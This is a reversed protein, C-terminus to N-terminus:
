ALTVSKTKAALTARNHAEQLPLPLKNSGVLLRRTIAVADDLTIRNGASVYLKLRGNVLVRAVEDGGFVLRGDVEEGVLRRKAVGISRTNLVVGVHTAIGFRRPHAVGHGNVMIVDPKKEVRRFALLMPGIERFALLGPVYPVTIKFTAVRAEVVRLSRVDVVVAAGYGYGERYAVDLGAVFSVDELDLPELRVRSSMVLQAKIAKEANFKTL